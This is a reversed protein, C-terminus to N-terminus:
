VYCDPSEGKMLRCAKSWRKVGQAVLRGLGVGRTEVRNAIGIEYWSTHLDILHIIIYAARDPHGREREPQIYIYIYIDSNMKEM